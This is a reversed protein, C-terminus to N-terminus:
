RVPLAYECGVMPVVPSPAVTALDMENPVPRGDWIATWIPARPLALAPAELLAPHAPLTVPKIWALVPTSPCSQPWGAKETHLRIIEQRSKYARLIGSPAPLSLILGNRARITGSSAM